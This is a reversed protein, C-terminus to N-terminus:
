NKQAGQILIHEHVEKLWQLQETRSQKEKVGSEADEKAQLSRIEEM